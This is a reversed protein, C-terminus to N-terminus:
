LEDGSLIMPVTAEVRGEAVKNGDVFLTATGRPPDTDVPSWWTRASNM